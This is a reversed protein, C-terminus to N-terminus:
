RTIDEYIFMLCQRLVEQEVFLPLRDNVRRESLIGHLNIRQRPIGCEASRGSNPADTSMRSLSEYFLRVRGVDRSLVPAALPVHTPGYWWRPHFRV